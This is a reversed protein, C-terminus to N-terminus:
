SGKIKARLGYTRRAYDYLCTLIEEVIAEAPQTGDIVYTNDRLRAYRRYLGRRNSIVESSVNEMYDGKTRTLAIEPPIDLVFTLDPSCKQDIARLTDITIPNGAQYCRASLTFRECIVMKGAAIQPVITRDLLDNLLASFLIGQTESSFRSENGSLLTDQIFDSIVSRDKVNTSTGTHVVGEGRQTLEDYLLKAVTSKGSGDIGELVIFKGKLM